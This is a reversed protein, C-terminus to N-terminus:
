KHKNECLKCLSVRLVQSNRLAHCDHQVHYKSKTRVSHDKNFMTRGDSNKDLQVSSCLYIDKCWAPLHSSHVVSMAKAVPASGKCTTGGGSMSFSRIRDTQGTATEKVSVKMVYQLKHICM